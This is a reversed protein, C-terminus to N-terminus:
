AKASCKPVAIVAAITFFADPSGVGPQLQAGAATTEHRTKKRAPTDSGRLSHLLASRTSLLCVEEDSAQKLKRLQDNAQAHLHVKLKDLEERHDRRAKELTEVHNKEAIELVQQARELKEENEEQANQLERRWKEQEYEHAERLAELKENGDQEQLSFCTNRRGTSRRWNWSDRHTWTLSVAAVNSFSRWVCFRGKDVSSRQGVPVCVWIAVSQLHHSHSVIKKCEDKLERVKGIMANLRDGQEEMRTKMIEADKRMKQEREWADAM